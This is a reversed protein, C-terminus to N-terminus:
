GAAINNIVGFAPPFYNQLVEDAYVGYEYRRTKLPWELQYYEQRTLVQVVNQVNSLAYPLTKTRFMVTGRPMNPHIKIDLETAGNMTFPNLYSKVSVGGTMGHQDSTFVFRQASSTSGTLVKKRIFNMEQASVLIEDPALRYNDWFSQLAADFEAITGDTGATLTTGVGATGTPQHVVYSNSGTKYCQYLLGDFAFANTSNDGVAGLIGSAIQTGTAAATIVISNITTIAGLAEAGPQGWFWAYGAAGNTQAVTATISSTALTATVAAAASQQASGGGYVETSADANTRTVQGIVGTAMSSNALGHATLAVCIVSWALIGLTGGTGLLVIIPTGTVGLPASTNGSLLYREEGIMMSQLLGRVARAKLDEFGAGAYTAEFTVDDELGIGRYAAYYDATSTAIIGGRAGEGVGIEMDNVNIGTVARWNAQIGGKGSVRPIENRLPTLVPYLTKAPAELDYYTLGSTASASQVFSKALEESPSSIAQKLLELTDM